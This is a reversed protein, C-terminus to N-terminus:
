HVLRVWPAKHFPPTVQYRQKKLLYDYHLRDWMNIKGDYAEGRGDLEKKKM